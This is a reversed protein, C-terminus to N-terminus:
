NAASFPVRSKRVNAPLKLTRKVYYITEDLKRLTNDASRGAEELFARLDEKATVPWRLYFDTANRMEESLPKGTSKAHRALQRKQRAHLHVRTPRM